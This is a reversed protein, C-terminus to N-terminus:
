RGNPITDLRELLFTREAPGLELFEALDRLKSALVTRHGIFYEFDCRMEARAFVLDDDMALEAFKPETRRPEIELLLDLAASLQPPAEVTAVERRVHSALVFEAAVSDISHHQM